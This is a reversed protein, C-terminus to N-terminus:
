AGAAALVRRAGIVVPIDVIKGAVVALGNPSAEYAEVIARARAVEDDSPTFAANVAAVNDPHLAAKGTFGLARAARSEAAVTDPNRFEITPVDLAGIGARAAALVIRARAYLLPEHAIETGLEAAFDAAGFMMLRLRPSAKAIEEVRALGELSEILAMLGAGSGAETLVADAIRLEEPGQVKPLFVLGAMPAADALAALDALGARSYLTNIRVVRESPGPAGCFWAVAAQRAADKGGQPVADELDVCVMDAGAAEAKGFRDPRAGPVFLLSRRAPM